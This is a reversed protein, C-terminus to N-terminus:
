VVSLIYEIIYCDNLRSFMWVHGSTKLHHRIHSSQFPNRHMDPPMIWWEYRADLELVSFLCKRSYVLQKRVFLWILVHNHHMNPEMVQWDDRAYLQLWALSYIYGITSFDNSIYFTRIFLSESTSNHVHKHVFLRIPFGDHRTQPWLEQIKARM